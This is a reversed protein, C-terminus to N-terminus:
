SSCESRLGFVYDGLEDSWYEGNFIWFMQNDRRVPLVNGRRREEKEAESVQGQRMIKEKARSLMEIKIFSLKEFDAVLQSHHDILSNKVFAGGLSKNAKERWKLVERLFATMGANEPSQTLRAMSTLAVKEANIEGDQQVIAAFYPGRIFRNTMRHLPQSSNMPSRLTQLGLAYFNVLNSENEEVFKKVTRGVDSYSLQFENLVQETDEYLCLSLYGQARLIDIESNLMSKLMPSKYTVLKGLSRNFERKSYSNWAEEFLIDAWVISEKPVLNYMEEAESYRDAQYLVRARSALCRNALDRSEGQELRFRTSATDRARVVLKANEQCDKFDELAEDVRGQIALATGRLQLARPYLPSSVSVSNLYQIAKNQDDRLLAAKGLSFLYASKNLADYDAYDTYRILYERFADVGSREFLADVQALVKRISPKHKSELTKFFFFTSSQFLGAKMLSLTVVANSEGLDASSKADQTASYAFRAATYFQGQQYLRNAQDMATAISGEASSLVLAGTVWFLTLSFQVSAAIKRV